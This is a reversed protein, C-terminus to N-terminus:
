WYGRYFVLVVAKQGRYDALHVPRGAADPLTFDPAPQGVVLAPTGAPVRTAVLHFFSAAGFLLVCLAFATVTLWHRRRSVAITALAVALTMAGLYWLPRLPILAQLLGVYTVVTGLALLLAVFALRRTGRRPPAPMPQMM